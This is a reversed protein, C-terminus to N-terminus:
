AKLGPTPLPPAAAPTAANQDAAPENSKLHIFMKTHYHSQSFYPLENRSHIAGATYLYFCLDNRLAHKESTTLRETSTTLIVLDNAKIDYFKDFADLAIKLAVKNDRIFSIAKELLNVKILGTLVAHLLVKSQEHTKSDLLAKEFDKVKALADNLTLKLETPM